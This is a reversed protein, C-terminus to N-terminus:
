SSLDVLREEWFCEVKSWSNWGMTCGFELCEYVVTLIDQAITLVSYYVMRNCVEMFDGGSRSYKSSM